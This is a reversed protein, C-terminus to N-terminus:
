LVDKSGTFHSLWSIRHSIKSLTWGSICKTTNLSIAQLYFRQDEGRCTLYGAHDTLHCLDDAICIEKEYKPTTTPTERRKRAKKYQCAGDGIVPIERLELAHDCDYGTYYCFRSREFLRRRGKICVPKGVRTPVEETLTMVVVRDKEYIHDVEFVDVEHNEFRIKLKNM